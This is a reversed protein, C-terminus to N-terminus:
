VNKFYRVGIDEGEYNEIYDLMEEPNTFYKYLKRCTDKMFNKSIANEVMANLENYYGDINYIAIAKSHRGLQKLTLIEFFEDFTGIGGPVVIFADSRDEMIQKRERMTVTYIFESCNEYLVGDTEFFRPSVGVIKGGCSYVGRAAAGMLGHAGGGYVLGHGRKAMMEGLKQTDTIFKKDIANSSSGYLCINM